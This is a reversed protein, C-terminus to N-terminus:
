EEIEPAKSANYRRFADELDSRFYGRVVAVGLKKQRPKAGFAELRTALQRSSIPQGRNFQLWMSDPGNCLATILDTTSIFLTKRELFVDFVDHLLEENLSPAKPMRKIAHLAAARCRAPWEGGALEAVKMLTGWLEEGRNELEAPLEPESDFATPDVDAAFRALKKRILAFSARVAKTPKRINETREHPLKRRMDIIIARSQLTEELRGIGAFAKAGWTCFTKPEADDGVCRLAQATRRVYSANLTGILEQKQPSVVRDSEDMFLTVHDRDIVRFLVAESCSAAMLSRFSMESMAELMVSKGCGLVPATIMAFPAVDFHEMLWTMGCWLVAAYSFEIDCVTFRQLMALMEDFLTDPAVPRDFPETDEWAALQSPSSDKAVSKRAEGVIRGLASASVGLEKAKFDRIMEFDLRPLRALAEIAARFADQSTGASEGAVVFQPFRARIIDFVAAPTHGFYILWNYITPGARDRSRILGVENLFCGITKGDVSINRNGNSNETFEYKEGRVEDGGSLAELLPQQDTRCLLDLDVDGPRLVRSQQQQRASSAGSTRKQAVVAIRPFASEMEQATYDVQNFEVTRVLFPMEDKHNYYGPVRLLQPINTAKKDGDFFACVRAEIEEWRQVDIKESIKFYIHYGARSEVIYTPKVPCVQMRALQTKKDGGDIDVYWYCLERLATKRRPGDFLNPTFFIGHKTQNLRRAEDHNKVLFAAGGDGPIAWMSFPSQCATDDSPACPIWFKPDIAKPETVQDSSATLGSLITRFKARLEENAFNDM